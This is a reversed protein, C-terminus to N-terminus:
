YPFDLLTAELAGLLHHRFIYHLNTKHHAGFACSKGSKQWFDETLRKESKRTSGKQDRSPLFTFFHSFRKDMAGVGYSGICLIRSLTTWPGLPHYM